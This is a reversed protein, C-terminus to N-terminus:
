DYKLAWYKVVMKNNHVVLPVNTLLLIFKAGRLKTIVFKVFYNYHQKRVRSTAIYLM